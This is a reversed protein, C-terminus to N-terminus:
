KKKAKILGSPNLILVTNLGCIHTFHFHITLFYKHSIDINIYKLSITLIDRVITCYISLYIWYLMNFIVKWKKQYVIHIYLISYIHIYSHVPHNESQPDDLWIIHIFNSIYSNQIPHYHCHLVFVLLCNLVGLHYDM